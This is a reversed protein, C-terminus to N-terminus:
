SVNGALLVFTDSLSVGICRKQSVKRMWSLRVISFKLIRILGSAGPSFQVSSNRSINGCAGVTVFKSDIMIFACLSTSPEDLTAEQDFELEMPILDGSFAMYLAM